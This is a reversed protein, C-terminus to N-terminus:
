VVVKLIDNLVLVYTLRKYNVHNQLSLLSVNEVLVMMMVSDRGWAFTKLDDCHDRLQYSSTWTAEM